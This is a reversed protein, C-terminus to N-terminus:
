RKVKLLNNMGPLHVETPPVPRKSPRAAPLHRLLVEEWNKAAEAVKRAFGGLWAVDGPWDM